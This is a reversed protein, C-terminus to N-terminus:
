KGFVEKVKNLGIILKDIDEKTNYISLSIRCTGQVRLKSMLPMACHHGARICINFKDSLIQAVDHCHIDKLNFSIISQSNAPKYITIGKITKLKNYTYNVLSSEYKEINKLGIKNIFNIAEGLIIAGSINPTGAEFKHPPNQFSSSHFNVSEIMGGGFHFPRMKELLNYKGYLVGIGFPAFAKHGSFTLFDCELDKVNIKKHAIGQAADIITIAKYKKALKIVSKADNQTGLANSVLSISVVATNKGIVKRALNYDLTLDTKIPIFRLKYGFAKELQQWPVLNSHHELETLVIENKGKKKNEWALSDITYALLNLSETAGKTFIIENHNAGIFNAIIKRVKEYEQTAHESLKYLGRHINSNEKEYFEKEKNIIVKPKQTTAASDLYVLNPNNEFIPFHKKYPM